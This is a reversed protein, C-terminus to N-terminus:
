VAASGSFWSLATPAPVGGNITCDQDAKAKVTVIQQSALAVIGSLLATTTGAQLQRSTTELVNLSNTNLWLNLTTETTATWSVAVTFIYNGARPAKFSGISPFYTLSNPISAYNFKIQASTGETLSQNEKPVAQFTTSAPPCPLPDRCALRYCSQEKWNPYNYSIM